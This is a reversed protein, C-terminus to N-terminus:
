VRGNGYVAVASCEGGNGRGETRGYATAKRIANKDTGVSRLRGNQWFDEKKSFKM